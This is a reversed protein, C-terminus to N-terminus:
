FFYCTNAINERGDNKGNVARAFFRDPTCWRLVGSWDHGDFRNDITPLPPAFKVTKSFIIYILFFFFCLMTRIYSM